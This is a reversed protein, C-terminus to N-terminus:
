MPSLFKPNVRIADLAKKEAYDEEKEYSKQLTKEISILEKILNEMKKQSQSKVLRKNIRRHRRLLKTRFRMTKNESIKSISKSPVFRKVAELCISYFCNLMESEDFKRLENKWDVNLLYETLENWDISEEFFNLARFSTLPPVSSEAQLPVDIETLIEIRSHHSISNITPAILIDHISDQNNTFLLDLINGDKHTSSNVVQHLFMENSLEDLYQFMIKEDSPCAPKCCGTQWDIHPLNFDGGFIINTHQNNLQHLALKLKDLCTKFDQPTSPHGHSRDDPQRYINYRDFM